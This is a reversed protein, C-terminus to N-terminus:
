SVPNGLEMSFHCMMDTYTIQATLWLPASPIKSGGAASHNIERGSFAAVCGDRMKCRWRTNQMKVAAFHM